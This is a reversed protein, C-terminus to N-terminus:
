IPSIWNSEIEVALSRQLLTISVILRCGGKQGTIIGEIGRLPGRQLSVRQGVQLFPWPEVGLLSRHVARVAEIETECVECPIRGFSVVHVVGPTVLIPLRYEPDFRCFVYGPFLPLEAGELRSPGADRRRYLPAFEEYGKGKLAASVAKEYRSKVRIAFWPLSRQVAHLCERLGYEADSGVWAASAM